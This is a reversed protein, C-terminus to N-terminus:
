CAMTLSTMFAAGDQRRPRSPREWQAEGALSIIPVKIGPLIAASAALITNVLPPCCRARRPIVLQPHSEPDCLDLGISLHDVSDGFLGFNWTGNSLHPM